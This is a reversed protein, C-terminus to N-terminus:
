EEMEAYVSSKLSFDNFFTECRQFLNNMMIKNSYDGMVIVYKLLAARIRKKNNKELYYQCYKKMVDDPIMNRVNCDFFNDFFQFASTMDNMKFFASGLSLSLLPLTLPGYTHAIHKLGYIYDTESFVDVFYHLYETPITSDIQNFIKYLEKFCSYRKNIYLSRIFLNMEKVDVNPKVTIINRINEFIYQDDNISIFLLSERMTNTKIKYIGEGIAYKVFEEARDYDKILRFSKIISAYIKDKELLLAKNLVIQNVWKTIENYNQLKESSEIIYPISIFNLFRLNSLRFKTAESLIQDYKSSQLLANLYLSLHLDNLNEPNESQYTFSSIIEDFNDTEQMLTLYYIFSSSSLYYSMSKIKRFLKLADNKRDQERYSRFMPTQINGHRLLTPDDKTIGFFFNDLDNFYEYYCLSYLLYYYINETPTLNKGKIKLLIDKANELNGSQCYLKIAYEHVLIDVDEPLSKLFIHADYYKKKNEFNKLHAIYEETTFTSFFCTQPLFKAFNTNKLTYSNLIARNISNLGSKKVQSLIRQM